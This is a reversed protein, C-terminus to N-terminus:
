TARPRRLQARLVGYREAAHDDFPLSAFPAFFAQLQKLNAEVRESHRAGYLLEAKVVTCLLLEEPARAKITHKLATDGELFAICVNTDLLFSV